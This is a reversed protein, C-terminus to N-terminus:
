FEGEQGPVRLREVLIFAALIMLMLITAAVHGVPRPLPDYPQGLRADIFVPLTAWDPNSWLLWTAGFEGLSIALILAAAVVLPGRMLPLTVACTRRMPAAGLMQAAESYMPPLNRAAPLLARVAFPLAIMLHGMVPIWWQFLLDSRWQLLGVLLGYGIMVASLGLPTMVLLDLGTAIHGHGSREATVISRVVLLALPLALLLTVLAFRISNSIAPWVDYRAPTGEWATRWPVFSWEGQLLFSGKAILLLPFLSFLLASGIYVRPLLWSVLMRWEPLRRFHTPFQPLPRRTSHEAALPLWRRGRSQFHGLLTFAVLMVILQVTSLALVIQSDVAGVGEIGAFQGREAMAREITYLEPGGLHRYLAFSTFSFIFTLTAAAAINAGLVPRWFWWLRQWASRGGPLLRANEELSPDLRAIAPEVFRLVLALNFWVHAILVAPLTHYLTIGLTVSLWGGPQFLTVFAITALMTPMVFPVTFLARLLRQAPWRYRGLLWALPLGIIVTAVTSLVAQLLTFGVVGNTQFRDPLEGIASLLGVESADVMKQVALIVPLLVLLLVLTPAILHSALGM